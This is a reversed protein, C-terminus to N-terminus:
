VKVSNPCCHGINCKVSGTSQQISRIQALIAVATPIMNLFSCQSPSNLFL